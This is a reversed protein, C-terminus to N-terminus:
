GSLWWPLGEIYKLSIGIISTWLDSLSALSYFRCHLRFRQPFQLYEGIQRPLPVCQMLLSLNLVVGHMSDCFEYYVLFPAKHHWKFVM